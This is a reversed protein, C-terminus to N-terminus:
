AVEMENKRESFEASVGPAHPVSTPTRSGADRREFERKQVVIFVSINTLMLVFQYFIQAAKLPKKYRKKHLILILMFQKIQSILVTIVYNLTNSCQMIIIVTIVIVIKMNFDLLANHSSTLVAGLRQPFLRENQKVM